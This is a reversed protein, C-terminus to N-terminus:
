FNIVGYTHLFLFIVYLFYFCILIGGMTRNLELRWCLLLTLTWSVVMSVIQDVFDSEHLMVPNGLFFISKCIWPLGLGILIDFINSGLTNSVAMDGYGKKASYLSSMFDPFSTGIALVTLGIIIPKAGIICGLTTAVEVMIYIWVVIWLIGNTFTLPWYRHDWNRLDPISVWFILTIPFAIAHAIRRHISKPWDFPKPVKDLIVTSENQKIEFSPDLDQITNIEITTEEELPITPVKFENQVELEILTGNHILNKNHPVTPNQPIMIRHTLKSYVFPSYKDAWDFIRQNFKM